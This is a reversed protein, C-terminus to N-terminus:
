TRYVVSDVNLYNNIKKKLFWVPESAKPEDMIAMTLNIRIINSYM